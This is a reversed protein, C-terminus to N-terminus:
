DLGKHLVARSRSPGSARGTPRRSARSRAGIRGASGGGRQTASQHSRNTRHARPGTRRIFWANPDVAGARCGVPEPNGESSRFRGSFGCRLGRITNAAIGNHEADNPYREGAPYPYRSMAHFPLPEVSTSFATNSGPGEGLWGSEASLRADMGSPLAPLGCGRVAAGTRRGFGDRGAQRGGGAGTRACGRLPYLTGGDPELVFHRRSPEYLYTDPQKREPDIRSQPSAASICIPRGAAALRDSSWRARGRRREPFDRGLLRVPQDRHSSRRSASLLKLAVAITKPKGAPMGMDENVTRWAGAADQM